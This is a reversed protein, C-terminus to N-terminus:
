TIDMDGPVLPNENVKLALVLGADTDLQQVQEDLFRGFVNEGSYIEIMTERVLGFLKDTDAAHTGFSDHILAFSALGQEKGRVVTLQLHAADLSHIFNPAVANVQAIADLKTIARGRAEPDQTDDITLRIRIGGLFTNVVRRGEKKDYKAQIVPFGLPTTWR